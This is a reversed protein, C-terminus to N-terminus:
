KSWTTAVIANEPIETVVRLNDFAMDGYSGGDFSVEINDFLLPAIKSPICVTHWTDDAPITINQVNIYGGGATSVLRPVIWM